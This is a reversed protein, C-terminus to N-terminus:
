TANIVIFTVMKKKDEEMKREVTDVVKKMVRKKGIMPKESPREQEVVRRQM